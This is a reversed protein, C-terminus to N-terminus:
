PGEKQGARPVLWMGSVSPGLGGLSTQLMGPHRPLEYCSKPLADGVGGVFGLSSLSLLISTLHKLIRTPLTLSLSGPTDGPCHVVSLVSPYSPSLGFTPQYLLNM